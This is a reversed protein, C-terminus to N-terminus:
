TLGADDSSFPEVCAHRSSSDGLDVAWCEVVAGFECMICIYFKQYKFISKMM